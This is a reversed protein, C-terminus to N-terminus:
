VVQRWTLNLREGVPAGARDARRPLQHKWDRNTPHRLVLLSGPELTLTVTALEPRGEGARGFARRPRLQFDRAAGLSLSLITPAPGLDREDDAHWGICDRGSRYHNVLVFNPHLGTAEALRERLALLPPIWPRAPVVVGSFAYRTGPDGYACQRRPIAIRERSFPLRV